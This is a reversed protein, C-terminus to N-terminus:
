FGDAKIRKYFSIADKDGDLIKEINAPIAKRFETTDTNIFQVGNSKMDEVIKKFRQKVEAKTKQNAMEVAEKFIAKEDSSLTKWFAESTNYSILVQLNNTMNMYKIVEYFNEDYIDMVPNDLGEILGTALSTYVEGWDLPTPSAGYARWSNLLPAFQACRNRMGKVDDMNHIPKNSLFQFTGGADVNGIIRVGAKKVLKQNIEEFLPTTCFQEFDEVTKFLYHVALAKFEPVYSEWIYTFDPYIQVTNLQLGQMLALSGGIQGAPYLEVTMDPMKAEIIKKFEIAQFQFLSAASNVHGIKCVRPKAYVMSGSLCVLM